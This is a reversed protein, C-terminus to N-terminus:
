ENEFVLFLAIFTKAKIMDTNRVTLACAFIQRTFLLTPMVASKVVIWAAWLPAAAPSVM